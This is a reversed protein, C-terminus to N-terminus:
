SKPAPAEGSTTPCVRRCSSDSVAKARNQPCRPSRQEERASIRGVQADEGREGVPVGREERVLEIVGAEVVARDEGAGGPVAEGVAVRIRATRRRSSNRSRSSRFEDRGVGDEAHIAIDGREAPHEGRASRWSAQSTTSSAWPTPTRPARGLCARPARGQAGRDCRTCPSARCPAPRSRRRRPRHRARQDRPQPLPRPRVDERGGQGRSRGRRGLRGKAKHFAVLSGPGCPERRVIGWAQERPPWPGRLGGTLRGDVAIWGIRTPSGARATASDARGAPGLAKEHRGDPRGRHGHSGRAKAHAKRRGVGALLDQRRGRGQPLGERHRQVNIADAGPASTTSSCPQPSCPRTPRGARRVASALGGPVDRRGARGRPIARRGNSAQIGEDVGPPRAHGGPGVSHPQDRPPRSASMEGAAVGRAQAREGEHAGGGAEDFPGVPRVRHRALGELRERPGRASEERVSRVNTVSLARPPGSARVRARSSADRRSSRSVGDRGREFRAERQKVARVQAVFDRADGVTRDDDVTAAVGEGRHFRCAPQRGRKRGRPQHLDGVSRVQGEHAVGGRRRRRPDTWPHRGGAASTAVNAAREVAGGGGIVAGGHELALDALAEDLVEVRDAQRRAGDDVQAAARAVGELRQRLAKGPRRRPDVERRRHERAGPGSAITAARTPPPLRRQGARVRLPQWQRASRDM